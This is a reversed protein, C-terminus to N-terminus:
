IEHDGCAIMGNGTFRLIAPSLKRRCIFCQGNANLKRHYESITTESLKRRRQKKAQRPAFLDIVNGHLMTM